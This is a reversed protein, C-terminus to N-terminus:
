ITQSKKNQAQRLAKKLFNVETQTMNFRIIMEYQRRMKAVKAFMKSDSFKFKDFYGQILMNVACLILMIDQAIELTKM